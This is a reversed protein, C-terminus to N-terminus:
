SRNGIWPLAGDGITLLLEFQWRRAGVRAGIEGRQAGEDLADVCADDGPTVVIRVRGRVRRRRLRERAIQARHEIVQHLERQAVAGGRERRVQFRRDFLVATRLQRRHSKRM